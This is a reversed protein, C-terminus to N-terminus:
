APFRERARLLGLERAKALADVRTECGLKFVILNLHNRVTTEALGLEGAIARASSGEAALALVELQRATLEPRDAARSGAPPEVPHVLHLYQAREGGQVTLLSFGVRRRRGGTTRIRVVPGQSSEGKMMMRAYACDPRCIRRGEDDVGDLVEWCHRGLVEEAGFGTLREAEENWLVLRLGDDFAFLAEASEVRDAAM